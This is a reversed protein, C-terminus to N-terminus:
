DRKSEEMVALFANGGLDSTGVKRHDVCKQLRGSLKKREREGGRASGVDLIFALIKECTAKGREKV